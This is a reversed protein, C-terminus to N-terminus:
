RSDQMARKFGHVYSLLEPNDLQVAVEAMNSLLKGIDRESYKVGNQASKIAELRRMQNPNSLFEDQSLYKEEATEFSIEGQVLQDILPAVDDVEVRIQNLTDRDRITVSFPHHCTLDM